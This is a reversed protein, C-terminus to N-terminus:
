ARGRARRDAGLRRRGAHRAPHVGRRTRRPEAAAPRAPRHRARAGGREHEVRGGLDAAPQRLWPVRDLARHPLPREPRPDPREARSVAREVTYSGKAVTRDAIDAYAGILYNAEIDRFVIRATADSAPGSTSRRREGASPRSRRRSPSCSASRAVRRAAGHVRAAARVQRAAQWRVGGGPDPAFCASRPSRCASCTPSSASSGTRTSSRAGSRSGTATPRPWSPTRSSRSSPSWRSPTPARSSSTRRPPRPTSTAGATTTSACSTRAPAAPRRTPAVPGPRAARGPRPGRRDHPAGPLEEFEVPVLAAAEEAADHTEAAVAAVPEGHYKTEGVALVPRDSFQPGFRPM